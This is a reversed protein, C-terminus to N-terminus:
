EGVRNRYLDNFRDDEINRTRVVATLTFECVFLPAAQLQWNSDQKGFRELSPKASSLCGEILRAM